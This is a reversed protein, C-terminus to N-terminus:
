ASVTQQKAPAIQPFDKFKLKWMVREGRRTFLLPESKAVIGEPRCGTGGDQEACLSRAGGLIDALEEASSPLSEYDGGFTPVTQIGLKEAVDRVNEWELWWPGVRVDFLRFKPTPSYGGGNQIKPGYGEGFLTFDSLSGDPGTFTARLKDPTLAALLYSLLPTPIQASDTRGGINVTGDANLGIRINTGDIKETVRWRRITAFDGRRLASPIVKRTKEDRDYLTEIKPYEIVPEGM